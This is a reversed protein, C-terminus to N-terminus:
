TLNANGPTSQRVVCRNKRQGSVDTPALPMPLIACLIQFMGDLKVWTTQPQKLISGLSILELPTERLRRSGPIASECDCGAVRIRAHPARLDIQVRTCIRSRHVLNNLTNYRLIGARHVRNSLM